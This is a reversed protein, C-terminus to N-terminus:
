LLILIDDSQGAAEDSEQPSPCRSYVSYQRIRNIVANDHIYEWKILIFMKVAIRNRMIMNDTGFTSSDEVAMDWIIRLDILSASQRILVKDNWGVIKFIDADARFTLVLLFLVM